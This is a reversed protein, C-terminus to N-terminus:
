KSTVMIQILRSLNLTVIEMLEIIQNPADTRVTVRTRSGNMVVVVHKQLKRLILEYFDPLPEEFTFQYEHSSFYRSVEHRKANGKIDFTEKKVERVTTNVDASSNLILSKTEHTTVNGEKIYLRYKMNHFLLLDKDHIPKKHLKYNSGCLTYIQYPMIGVCKVEEEDLYLRDASHNQSTHDYFAFLSLMSLAVFITAFNINHVYEM